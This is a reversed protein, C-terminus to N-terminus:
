HLEPEEYWSSAPKHKAGLVELEENTLPFRAARSKRSHRRSKTKLAGDAKKASPKKKSM